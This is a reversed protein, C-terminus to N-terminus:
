NIVLCEDWPQFSECCRNSCASVTTASSSFDRNSCGATYYGSGGAQSHTYMCINNSLCFDGPVCCPLVSTTTNLPGCPVGGPGMASNQWVCNYSAAMNTSYEESYGMSLYYLYKWLSPLFSIYKYM